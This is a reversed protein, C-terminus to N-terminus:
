RGNRGVSSTTIQSLLKRQCAMEQAVLEADAPALGKLLRAEAGETLWEFENDSPRLGNGEDSADIVPIPPEGDEGIAINEIAQLQCSHEGHSGSPSGTVQTSTDSIMTSQSSPSGQRVVAPTAPLYRAFADDFQSRTYGNPQKGDALKITSPFIGFRKLQQAVNAATIPKGRSWTAWPRDELGVLAGALHSSGIRDADRAGNKLRDDFLKRIDALLMVSRSQEIQDAEQASLFEAAIRAQQAWHRGALDAIALLVRWNDCARDHLGQPMNPDAERLEGEHDAAWRAMKSALVTLHEVRDSRFRDIRENPLRRRLAVVIARDQITGPLNGIAAIATPCFTSFASPEHDDGVLRVVQGDRSHGSNIIGRLEENDRLFTDAEDILLSPRYKEVTRFMAAATINDAALAKPVLAQLVRLLTTKGCRKEPATIALRPSISFAAFCFAHMAWLAIALAAEHALMVYLEIQAVVEDLLEAGDVPEPFPEIQKFAIGRGSAHEDEDGIADGANISKEIEKDLESVLIKAEKLHERIRIFTAMNARKTAALRAIQQPEFPWGADSKAREVLADIEEASLPKPMIECISGKEIMDIIETRGESM